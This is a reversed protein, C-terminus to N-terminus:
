HTSMPLTASGYANSKKPITYTPYAASLIAIMKHRLRCLHPSMVRRLYGSIMLPTIKISMRPQGYFYYRYSFISDAKASCEDRHTSFNERLLVNNYSIIGANEMLQQREPKYTTPNQM